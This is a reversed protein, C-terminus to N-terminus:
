RSDMWIPSDKRAFRDKLQESLPKTPDLKKWLKDQSGKQWFVSGHQQGAGGIAKINRFSFELNQEQKAKLKQFLLDLAEIWM